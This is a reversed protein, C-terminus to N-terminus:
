QATDQQGTDPAAALPMSDVTTPQEFRARGATSRLAEDASPPRRIALGNSYRMDIYQPFHNSRRLQPWVALLRQMRQQLAERGLAISTGNALQLLWSGRESLQVSAIGMGIQLWQDRWALWQRLVEDRRQPPGSLRPLERIVNAADAGFVVGHDSILERENWYAVPRHERISVNITDPWSRRVQASAVWGLSELQQVMQYLDLSFFGQQLHARLRARIQEASVRQEPANIEIWRVPWRDSAIWGRQFWLLLLLVSIALMCWWLWGHVRMAAPQESIDPAHRQRMSSM